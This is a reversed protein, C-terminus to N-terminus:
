DNGNPVELMQDVGLDDGQNTTLAPSSFVNVGFTDYYM